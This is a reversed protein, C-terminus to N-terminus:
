GSSYETGDKEVRALLEQITSGQKHAEIVLEKHNLNKTGLRINLSEKMILDIAPAVKEYSELVIALTYVFDFDLLPPFNKQPTDIWGLLINNFGYPLGQRINFFEWAKKTDFKKSYKESLPLWVVSSGTIRILDIWVEYTNRQVGIHPWDNGSRSEVLYLEELGTHTDTDWIAILCHSARGGMGYQLLPGIGSFEM